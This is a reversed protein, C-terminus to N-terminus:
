TCSQFEEESLSILVPLGLRSAIDEKTKISDDLLEALYAIGVGGFFGILLSLLFNLLRRPAVSNTSSTAPQVVSVNSVKSSDLAASIDARQHHAIYERYERDVIDVSRELRDLGIEEGALKTLATRKIALEESLSRLRAM